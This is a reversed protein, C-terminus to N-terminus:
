MTLRPVSPRATPWGCGDYSRSNKSCKEDLGEQRWLREVRNHNVTWASDTEDAYYNSLLLQLATSHRNETGVECIRTAPHATVCSM